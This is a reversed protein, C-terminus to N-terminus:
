PANRGSTVAEREVPAPERALKKLREVFAEAKPDTLPRLESCRFWLPAHQGDLLVAVSYEKAAPDVSDVFGEKGVHYSDGLGLPQHAVVRVRQGVRFNAM